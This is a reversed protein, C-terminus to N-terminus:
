EAPFYGGLIAARKAGTVATLNTAHRQTHAWALWAFLVGEVWDPHVGLAYTTQWKCAVDLQTCWYEAREMLYHNRAGGGCVYVATPLADPQPLQAIAQALTIASLELLTAQVDVPALVNHRALLTSLWQSTFYERGTSKPPKRAFYPDNLLDNLLPQYVEGSRAWAGGNDYPQQLHHAIWRDMLTNGPGTDFGLPASDASCALATINSIGGINAIVRFEKPNAFLVQHLAPALPAGEGGLAIDKQRFQAVVDIGTATALTHPCGLQLSFGPNLQPHHRVTQGHSGIARVASPPLQNRALLALVGAATALAFERDAQGYRVLEDAAPTCLRHLQQQLDAALPWHLADHHSVNGRHDIRVLVLDIGDLSTGSLTGIFYEAAAM